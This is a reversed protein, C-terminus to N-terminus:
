IRYVVQVTIKLVSMEGIHIDRYYSQDRVSVGRCLSAKRM